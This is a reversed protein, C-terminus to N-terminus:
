ERALFEEKSIAMVHMQVRVTGTQTQVDDEVTKEKHMGIKECLYLSSFNDCFVIAYVRSLALQEFAYRLILNGAQKGYGKGRARDEGIFIGFEAQKENLDVNKLFATGIDYADGDEQVHVIFQRCKGTQVYKKFYAEHTQATIPTQTCLNKYVTESNRWRVIDDTDALTLARLSVQGM